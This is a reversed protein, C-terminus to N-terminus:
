SGGEAMERDIRHSNLVNCVEAGFSEVEVNLGVVILQGEQNRHEVEGDLEFPKENRWLDFFWFEWFAHVVVQRSLILNM